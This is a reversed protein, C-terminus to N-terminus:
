RPCIRYVRDHRQARRVPSGFIAPDRSSKRPRTSNTSRTRAHRTAEAATKRSCLRRSRRCAAQCALSSRDRRPGRESLAQRGNALLPRGAARRQCLASRRPSARHDTAGPDTASCAPRGPHTATGTGAGGSELWLAYEAGTLAVAGPRGPATELRHVPTAPVSAPDTVTIGERRSWRARADTPRRSTSTRAASSRAASRRGQGIAATSWRTGQQLGARLQSHIRLGQRAPIAAPGHCGARHTRRVDHPQATFHASVTPPATPLCAPSHRMESAGSPGACASVVSSSSTRGSDGPSARRWMAGTSPRRELCAALGITRTSSNRASARKPLKVGFSNAFWASGVLNLRTGLVLGRPPGVCIRVHGATRPREVRFAFCRAQM